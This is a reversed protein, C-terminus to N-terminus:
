EKLLDPTKAIEFPKKLLDFAGKSAMLVVYTVGHLDKGIGVGADFLGGAVVIDEDKDINAYGAHVPRLAGFADAFAFAPAPDPKTRPLGIWGDTRRIVDFGRLFV